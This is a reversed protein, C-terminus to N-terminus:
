RATVEYRENGDYLVVLNVPRGFRSRIEEALAWVPEPDGRGAILLEVDAEDDVADVSIEVIRAEPDWAEVANVVAGQLQLDEVVSGTHRALPVAVLVVALATILLRTRLAGRGLGARPRFGSLLLAIGASFVIAALNTLYLLFANRSETSLGLEATIGVTALPPVLAVAIGVGPLAAFASRRPLIYGGAAGASIAVGLDLLGPFTRNQIEQPLLSPDIVTGGAILSTLWGVAVALGTGLLIVLVARVLRRNDATVVAASAGMIPTMLPAILMAGIVVAGSDSLLGFAAVASSLAVLSCFRAIFERQADGTPILDDVAEIAEQTPESPLVSGMWGVVTGLATLRPPSPDPRTADDLPAPDGTGSSPQEDTM